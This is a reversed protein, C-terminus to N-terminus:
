AQGGILEDYGALDPEPRDCATLRADLDTLRAPPAAPTSARRALVAVARGDVAGAALTGRVALEVRAPGLERCLLLVDVMQAAAQSADYREALAAWLEDFCVPWRGAQREQALPLSRELGGPKRRLLELYHDLQASTKFRGHLREHRAVQRGGHNIRIESAGVAASVRLGALAVPVSYRNQRVTVLAKSDVRVSAIETSDFAGATPLARLLPREVAFQDAVTGPRGIIRRQLDLDSADRLMVNLHAISSATPVPVFHRRRFRGVEGEVGGKEHAGQLGATTFMSAYLYHSRMAVFRDTEIRRRGKLVKKVASGLNDYRVEEFVGGFWDFAQAHGELFAQQTEVPAAMAFAAGSFCARMFFVHVRTQAGALHVDAEGWDVEATVGPAHVQPVFVDSGAQGLARRRKRVHDRVTTEAVDLGYEDVLRQWIRKSTHRQKRPATLDGILWEDILERYAGLKPAPRGVPTRRPPPLPSELAQRVVRRHVGHREALARISLGERDHDRRIQEFQEM